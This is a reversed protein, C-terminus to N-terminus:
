KSSFYTNIVWQIVAILVGAAGVPLTMKRALGKGSRSAEDAIQSLAETTTRKVHSEFIEMRSDHIVDSTMLKTIEKTHKDFQEKVQKRLDTILEKNSIAAKEAKLAADISEKIDKQIGLIEQNIETKIDKIDEKIVSIDKLIEANFIIGEAVINFKKFESSEKSHTTIHNTEVIIYADDSLVASVTWWGINSNDCLIPWITKLKSFFEGSAIINTLRLRYDPDVLSYISSNLISKTENKCKEKLSKNAWTVVGTAVEIEFYFHNSSELNKKVADRSKYATM